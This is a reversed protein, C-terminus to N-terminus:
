DSHYHAAAYTFTALIDTSAALFISVGACSSRTATSTAFTSRTPASRCLPVRCRSLASHPQASTPRARVYVCTCARVVYAPHVHQRRTGPPAQTLQQAQLSHFVVARSVRLGAARLAAHTSDTGWSCGAPTSHLSAILTDVVPGARVFREIGLRRMVQHLTQRSRGFLQELEKDRLRFEVVAVELLLSELPLVTGAALASTIEVRASVRDEM